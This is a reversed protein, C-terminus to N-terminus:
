MMRIYLPKGCKICKGDEIQSDECQCEDTMKKHYSRKQIQTRKRKFNTATVHIKMPMAAMNHIGHPPIDVNASM